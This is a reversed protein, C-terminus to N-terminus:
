KFHELKRALDSYSMIHSLPITRVADYVRRQFDSGIIRIPVTLDKRKGDLYDTLQLAAERLVPHGPDHIWGKEKKGSPADTYIARILHDGDAVLLLDGVLKHRFISYHHTPAPSAKKGTSSRTKM